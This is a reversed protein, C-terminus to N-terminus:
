KIVYKYGGNVWFYEPHDEIVARYAKIVENEDANEFHFSLDYNELYYCIMNYLEVESESLEREVPSDYPTMYYDSVEIKSPEKYSIEEEFFMEDFLKDLDLDFSCSSM